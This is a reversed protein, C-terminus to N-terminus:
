NSPPAATPPPVGRRWRILWLVYGHLAYVLFLLFLV